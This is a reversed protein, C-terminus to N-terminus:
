GRTAPSGRRTRGAGGAADGDAEAGRNRRPERAEAQLRAAREEHLRLWLGDNM